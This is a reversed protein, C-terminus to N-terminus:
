SIVSFILSIRALSFILFFSLREFCFSLFANAKPTPCRTPGLLTRLRISCTPPNNQAVLCATGVLVILGATGEILSAVFVVKELFGPDVDSSSASDETRVELPEETEVQEVIVLASVRFTAKGSVASLRIVFPVDVSSESDDNKRGLSSRLGAAGQKAKKAAEELQTFKNVGRSDDHNSIPGM